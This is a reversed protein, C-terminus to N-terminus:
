PFPTSFVTAAAFSFGTKLIDRRDVSSMKLEIHRCNRSAALPLQSGVFANATHAIALLRIAVLTWSCAM